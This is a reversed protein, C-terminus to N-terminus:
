TVALRYRAPKGQRNGGDCFIYLNPQPFPSLYTVNVIDLQHFTLGRTPFLFTVGHNDAQIVDLLTVLFLLSVLLSSARDRAPARNSIGM